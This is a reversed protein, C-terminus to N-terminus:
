LNRQQKQQQLSDLLEKFADYYEDVVAHFITSATEQDYTHTTLQRSKITKILADSQVLGKSFAMTFADRSGQINTEGVSQYFSKIVNWAREYTYEFAQILGRQEINSLTRETALEIDETLTDFAKQYSDLHQIWRNNQTM